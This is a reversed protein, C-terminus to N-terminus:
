YFIHSPKIRMADNIITIIIINQPLIIIFVITYFGMLIVPEFITTNQIKIVSSLVNNIIILDNVNMSFIKGEYMKFNFECLRITRNEKVKIDSVFM